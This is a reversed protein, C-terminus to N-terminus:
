HGEMQKGYVFITHNKKVSRIDRQIHKGWYIGSHKGNTKRIIETLNWFAKLISQISGAHQSRFTEKGFAKLVRHISRSYVLSNGFSASFARFANTMNWPGNPTNPFCMSGLVELLENRICWSSSAHKGFTKRVHRISKSHKGFVCPHWM